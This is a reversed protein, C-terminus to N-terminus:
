NLDSIYGYERAFTEQTAKIKELAEDMKRVAEEQLKAWEEKKELTYAEEPLKYIDIMQRFENDLVSKYTGMLEVGADRFYTKGDFDAMERIHAAADEVAKQTESYAADLAVMDEFNKFAAFLADFKEMVRVQESTIADNYTRAQEKSPGCATILTFVALILTFSLTNRM